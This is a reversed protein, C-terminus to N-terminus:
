ENLNREAGCEHCKIVGYWGAVHLYDYEEMFVVSADWWEGGCNLCRLSSPEDVPFPIVQAVSDLLEDDSM